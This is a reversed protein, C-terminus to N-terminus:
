LYKDAWQPPSQIMVEKVLAAVDQAYYNVLYGIDERSMMEKKMPKSYYKLKGADIVQQPLAKRIIDKIRLSALLYNLRAYRPITTRNLDSSETYLCGSLGLFQDLKKFLKQMDLLESFDIVLIALPDFHEFYRGLLRYYLGSELIGHQISEGRSEAEIEQEIADRFRYPVRSENREMLFHSWAREIPDRVIVIIKADPCNISINRAANISRLYGPSVEGRYRYNQSSMPFLLQYQHSDTILANHVGIGSLVMQEIDPNRVVKIHKSVSWLDDSFFNPEKISSMYIQPHNNLSSYLATTGAKMAGVVFLNPRPMLSLNDM